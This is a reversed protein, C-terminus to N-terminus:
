STQHLTPNTQPVGGNVLENVGEQFIHNLKTIREKEQRIMSKIDYNVAQIKYSDSSQNKKLEREALM